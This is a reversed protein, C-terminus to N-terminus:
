KEEGFQRAAFDVASIPSPDPNNGNIVSALTEHCGGKKRGFWFHGADKVRADTFTAGTRSVYTDISYGNGTVQSKHDLGGNVKLFNEVMCQPCSSDARATDIFQRGVQYQWRPQKPPRPMGGAAPLIPDDTGRLSTEDLGKPPLPDGKFVTGADSFMGAFTGEPYKSALVGLDQRGLSMGVLFIKGPQYESRVQDIIGKQYPIDDYSHDTPLIGLNDGNPDRMTKTVVFPIGTTRPKWLPYVAIFGL